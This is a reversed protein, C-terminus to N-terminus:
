VRVIMYHIGEHGSIKANKPIKFLKIRKKSIGLRVLQNKLEEARKVSLQKDISTSNSTQFLVSLEIKLTPNNVM